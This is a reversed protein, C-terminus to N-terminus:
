SILAKIKKMLVKVDFPKPLYDDIGAAFIKLRNDRSDYGTIAVLPINRTKGSRKLQQCIEFGSMSPMMLDMIVLDPLIEEIRPIAKTGSTFYHGEYEPAPFLEQLVLTVDPDDEIVVIKKM